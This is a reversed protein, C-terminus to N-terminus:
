SIFVGVRKAVNADKKHCTRGNNRLISAYYQQTYIVEALLTVLNASETGFELFKASQPQLQCGFCRLKTALKKLM